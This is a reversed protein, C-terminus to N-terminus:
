LSHTASVALTISSASVKQITKSRTIKQAEGTGQQYVVGAGLQSSPQVWSLFLSGGNYDIHDRQGTSDANLKPRADNNTFYGVRLPLFPLIYFELGAAYNTVADKAYISGLGTIEEADKVASTYSVDLSLLFRPSYFFAFGTGIEYPPTGLPKQARIEGNVQALITDDGNNVNAGAGTSAANDISDQNAVSTKTSRSESDLEFKQTLYHAMKFTLGWSFRDGLIAQVSIVPQIGEGTVKQRINQTQLLYFDTSAGGVCESSTNKTDQYEQVLEEIKIYNLAVGVALRPMVRYALSGSINMTSARQNATRHFRKLLVPKRALGDTCPSPTGLNIDKDYLDNQDKLENNNLYVGFAFVLGQKYNDLKQLGGFFSPVSGSSNETFDNDAIANKYTAKSTYFANASGSIDNNLAFATGAPNYYVGSADDSIATYAGGLGIARDGILFNKYHFQDAYLNSCLGLLAISLIRIYM